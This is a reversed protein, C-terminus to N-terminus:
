EGTYNYVINAGTLKDNGTTSINAKLAEWQAQTGKYYVTELVTSAFASAGISVLSAPLTITKLNSCYEFGGDEITKVNDPIVIEEFRNYGFAGIGITELSDPLILRRLRCTSFAEEPIETVETASSLDLSFFAYYNSKNAVTEIATGIEKLQEATLTKDTIKIMYVNPNERTGGELGAIVTAANDAPTYVEKPDSGMCILTASDLAENGDSIKGNDKLADWHTKTGGYKVTSLQKITGSFSDKGITELTAPIEVEELANSLNFVTDGITKAGNGFIVKKLSECVQFASDGVTEAYVTAAELGSCYFAYEDLKKVSAPVTVDKLASCNSFAELGITEVGDEITLASLSSCNSFANSGVTKVTGPIVISEIGSNEFASIGIKTVSAPFVFGALNTCDQFAYYQIEEAGTTDGLDVTLKTNSNERIATGIAGIEDESIKGALKIETEGAEIAALIPTVAVEWKAYLKVDGTVAGASWGCWEYDSFDAKSYWGKFDYFRREPAYLTVKETEINYETPNESSNQAPNLTDGNLVYSISWNGALVWKAFLTVDGNGENLDKVKEGAEYTSGTGDATACWGKFNYGTKTLEAAPLAFEEGATTSIDGPLKGEGGNADFTVTYTKTWKAYLTIDGTVTIKAKDSYSVGVGASTAWGSFTFGERIFANATLTIETGEEATQAKMEGSGGNADFTITYTAKPTEPNSPNTNSGGGNGSDSPNEAPNTVQGNDGNSGSDTETTCGTFVALALLLTFILHPPTFHKHTFNM